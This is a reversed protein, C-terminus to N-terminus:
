KELLKKLKELIDQTFPEELKGDDVWEYYELETMNGNIPRLSYKVHYSSNKQSMVFIEDEKFETIIYESWNGNKNQNKYITGQKTPSENKEESVITDIWNPTNHPDLVFAFVEHAPKNIIITLKKDKM